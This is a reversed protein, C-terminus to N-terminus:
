VADPQVEPRAAAFAPLSELHASIAVLTPFPSLDTDFRRANFMQPVLCVDALSVADGCCYRRAGSLQRAQIELGEFGTTVWHRYWTGVSQEDQGLCKRLYNLVRLNNLPHIECAIALAMSRVRAREIPDAPLLPPTPHRENLYEIIALSQSLVTGDIALAPILGQPNLSLYEPARHENSAFAKPVSEYTLGKLNLAIRVRFAASSRFFTYLKM